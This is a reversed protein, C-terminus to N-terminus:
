YHTDHSHEMVSNIMENNRDSKGLQSGSTDLVGSFRDHGRVVALLVRTVGQGPSLRSLGATM